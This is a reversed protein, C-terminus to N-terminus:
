GRSCLVHVASQRLSHNRWLHIVPNICSNLLTITMSWPFVVNGYIGAPKVISLVATPIFIVMFTVLTFRTDVLVKRERMTLRQVDLSNTDSIVSHNYRVIILFTKVKLVVLSTLLVTAVSMRFFPKAHAPIIRQILVVYFCWFIWCSRAIWSAVKKAHPARYALPKCLAICRDGAILVMHTFSCGVCFLIATETTKTLSNLSDCTMHDNHLFLRLAIYLPKATLSSVCDVLTLSHILIDYPTKILELKRKMTVAIALNCLLALVATTANVVSLIVDNTHYQSSTEWLIFSSLLCKNESHNTM